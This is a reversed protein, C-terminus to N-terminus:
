TESKVPETASTVVPPQDKELPLIFRLPHRLVQRALYKLIKVREDHRVNYAQLATVSAIAFSVGLNLVFTLGIGAVAFYFWNHGFSAVGYRAASLALMGTNLTVHRVDLPLGFFHAIEPFFGLMYGLVISTSWAAINNEFWNALRQMRRAGIKQGLPHQAIAAPIRNYVAFNECWGGIVGAAWLIVGTIAADIGTGSTFPHLTEYVRKAMATPLYSHLFIRHWLQEFAIAGLCVAVVNGLAAALQTRSIRAAIDAIKSWRSVGRNERVIGALAAGTMSPQKTALALGFIQLLVFSIAYDTGILFGQVFLPLEGEMVKLKLAATFVTLLGGGLAALWMQWYERRSLAIYHEGSHGTREVTKRALLNLNQRILPGLQTDELRGAVLTNLLQRVPHMSQLSDGAITSALLQMRDLSADMSSLDFVLTTSVGAEEMHLRVQIMERRCAHVADLWIRLPVSNERSQETSQLFTQTVFVFQYFPSADVNRTSGRQRVAATVGRGAVRTALLSLSQRIDDAVHPVASLGSRPWLIRALRAFTPDDLQIFREVATPTSFVATFLRATDSEERASPLLRQFIRRVAEPLLAYRAPLGTDAFLPVSDLEALMAQWSLDFRARLDKDHELLRIWRLLSTTFGRETPRNWIYVLLAAARRTRISLTGADCFAVTREHLGTDANAFVPNKKWRRRRLRRRM